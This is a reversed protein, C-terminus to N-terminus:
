NASGRGFIVQSAHSHHQQTHFQQTQLLLRTCYISKLPLFKSTTMAAHHYHHNEIPPPRRCLQLLCYMIAGTYCRLRIMAPASRHPSDAHGNEANLALKLLPQTVTCRDPTFNNGHLPVLNAASLAPPQAHARNLGGAQCPPGTLSMTCALHGIRKVSQDVSHWRVLWIHEQHMLLPILIGIHVIYNHNACPGRFPLLSSLKAFCPM